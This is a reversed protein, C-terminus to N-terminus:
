VIPETAHRAAAQQSPEAFAQANDRETEPPLSEEPTHAVASRPDRHRRSGDILVAGLLIAHAKALAEAASTVDRARSSKRTVVLITADAAACLLQTEATETISPASVIITDASTRLQDLVAAVRERTVLSYRDALISGAPLIKLSKIDGDKLVGHVLTSDVLADNFGPGGAPKSADNDAYVLVTRSGQRASLEALAEAIDRAGRSGRSDTMAIVAPKPLDELSVINTLERLRDERLMDRKVSGAAPVETLLEVGTKDRLDASSTLRTSLTGLGLAALVGLLLGGVAGAVLNLVVKPPNMTVGARPQLGMLENVSNNRAEDIRQQLLVYYANTSGDGALPSVKSLQREM